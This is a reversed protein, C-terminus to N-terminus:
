TRDNEKMESEWEALIDSYESYRYPRIPREIPETNFVLVLCEGIGKRNETYYFDVLEGNKIRQKIRNHYPFM